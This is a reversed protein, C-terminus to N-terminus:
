ALLTSAVLDRHRRGDSGGTMCIREQRQARWTGCEGLSSRWEINQCKGVLELLRVIGDADCVGRRIGVRLEEVEQGSKRVM